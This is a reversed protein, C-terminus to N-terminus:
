INIIKHGIDKRFFGNNWKLKNILQISFSRAIKLSSSTSVFNLVRGGTSYFKNKVLKTGAHFIHTNKNIKLNDLNKILINKKYAGPYGRSSLVICISKKKFWEIKIKKLNQNCTENIIKLLDTKLLPLITQCEPDGMRVNYEILYPEENVIMLGAYLFGIYKTKMDKIAKLTPLIIKKLIKKDLKKNILGSPTYAGMGGTNPGKDNEFIRKHDQATHFKKFSKGDSIIFYSMEEGNLYEEILVKKAKGFKGNFIEKIAKKCQNVTNCIYVGKGAALNDAKIVIPLKVNKIFQFSKKKNKFIGFKATPIKYKKCLNKTFIKSGELRAAKKNPGFVKIRNLKLFDALGDVLPKEPGIVVLDIFNNKFFKLLKQFNNLEININTAFKSTGANGPICYIREIKRSESIKKSLAHERGGSGLIAVNM